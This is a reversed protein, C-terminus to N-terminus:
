SKSAESISPIDVSLQQKFVLRFGGDLPSLEMDEFNLRKNKQLVVSMRIITCLGQLKQRFEEPTEALSAQYPKPFKKTHHRALLAILKIEETSFGYLHNGEMIVRYSQKHYGRKGAFLGIAHLLCAAELCELDEGGLDILKGCHRLGEFIGKAFAACRAGNEVRKKNNFRTALRVVSNWRPNANLKFGVENFEEKLAEAVVGEGLAYESVEMEEIGLLEFIEELLLTGAVIFESRKKFLEERIEKEEQGEETCLREVVRKLEVRSFRWDRKVHRRLLEEASTDTEAAVNVDGYGHFVAKEVAGITGSSGVAVEFGFRKVQQVLGSDKVAARIFNRMGGVVDGGAFRQTLSVHGLKLSTAFDVIGGEGIAFETSGGGIDILLARKERVPFFQIVGSYALRAEEEGSLVSVDLGTAARVAEVLESGNAAERVASTAVCRTRRPPIGRARLIETFQRLCRLAELVADPSISPSSNSSAAASDRGLCVRDSHRAVTLFRGSPPHFQVIIMKISNTGMDIAAFLDDPLAM